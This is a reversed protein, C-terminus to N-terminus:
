ATMAKIMRKVNGMAVPELSDDERFRKSRYVFGRDRLTQWFKLRGAAFRENGYFPRLEESVADDSLKALKFPWAISVIDLDMVEACQEDLNPIKADMWRGTCVIADCAPEVDAGRVLNRLLDASLQESVGPAVGPIYIADHFWVALQQWPCLQIGFVEASELMVLPHLATHYALGTRSMLSYVHCAIVGANGGTKGNPSLLDELSEVFSARVDAYAQLQRATMPRRLPDGCLEGYRSVFATKSFDTKM